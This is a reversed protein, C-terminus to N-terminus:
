RPSSRQRRGRHRRSAGACISMPKSNGDVFESAIESNDDAEPFFRSTRLVIVPLGEERAVLSCVDEAATKTVGYINKPIPAVEETIWAAPSGPSPVLAQGFASTTSTFVFRSVGAAAAEELLITTGTVNTEIFSRRHHTRIHPKHLTATLLVSEAGQRCKRVRPVIPSQASRHSRRTSCTLAWPNAARLAYLAFWLKEWTERVERSLPKGEHCTTLNPRKRISM